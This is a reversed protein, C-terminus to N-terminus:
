IFLLSPTRDIRPCEWLSLQPIRPQLQDQLLLIPHCTPSGGKRWHEWGYPHGGGSDPVAPDGWRGRYEEQPAVM